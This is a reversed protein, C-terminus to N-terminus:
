RGIRGAVLARWLPRPRWWRQRWWRWAHHREREHEGRERYWRALNRHVRAPVHVHARLADDLADYHQELLHRWFRRVLPARDSLRDSGKQAGEDVYTGVIENVCCGRHGGEFLRYLFDTDEHCPYSPDFPVRLAVERRIAVASPTAWAGHFMAELSTPRTYRPQSFVDGKGSSLTVNAVTFDLGPDAELPAVQVRARQPLARDDSDLFLVIDGQAAAVAANRARSPGGNEQRLLRVRREARYRARLVATTDDTSGDDLVVVEWPMSPPLDQALADDIAVTVRASRNYTPIVFSVRPVIPGAM